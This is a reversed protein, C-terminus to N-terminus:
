LQFVFSSSGLDGHVGCQGVVWGMQGPLYFDERSAELKKDYCPMVACHYVAEPRLEVAECYRRKIVSGMVAQPSKTSSIYPLVFHGHTKEAYCVWGPCASALMPLPGAASTSALSSSQTRDDM